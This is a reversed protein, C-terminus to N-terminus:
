DVFSHSKLERRIKMFVGSYLRLKLAIEWTKTKTKGENEDALPDISVNFPSIKCRFRNSLSTKYLLTDVFAVNQM